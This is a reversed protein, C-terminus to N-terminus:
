HKGVVVEIVGDGDTTKNELAKGIVTGVKPDNNVIAYGPKGSTVLLDGKHVRGIVKCPVRGTLAVEVVNDGTLARNMLYAPDTSVVGAVKRDNFTTSQTVEFEGGFVVVTGPTYKVDAQYNEALDAYYATLAEGHFRPAYLGKAKPEGSSDGPKYYVDESTQMTNQASTSSPATATVTFYYPSVGSTTLKTTAVSAAGPNSAFTTNLTVNGTGDFNQATATVVGTINFTRITELKTASGANSSSIDTADSFGNIDSTGIERWTPATSDLSALFKRTTAHTNPALMATTDEASQYPISGVAGGVINTAKTVTSTIADVTLTNTSANFSLSGDTYVTETKVADTATTANNSNVFTIYYTANADSATETRIQSASSANGSFSGDFSPAYITGGVRLAKQVLMGGTVKVAGTVTDWNNIVGQGNRTLAAADTTDTFTVASNAALTTFAATKPSTSGISMNTITGELFPNIDVKGSAGTPSISVANAPSITVTGTGTPSLTINKDLATMTVAAGFTATDTTELTTFKGTSHDSSGISMNTITGLVTSTIELKPTNGSTLKVLDRYTTNDVDYASLALTNNDLKAAKLKTGAIFYAKTDITDTDDSGLISNNNVTLKNVTIEDSEFGNTIKISPAEVGVNFTWRDTSSLWTITKDALAKLTIGGGNATTNNNGTATFRFDEGNAVDGEFVLEYANTSPNRRVESITVTGTQAPGSVRTVVMGPILGTPDGGATSVVATAVRNTVTCTITPSQEVKALILNKDAVNVENSNVSTTTGRVTLNGTLITNGGVALDTGIFVNKAVALGGKSKLPAETSSNAADVSTTTVVTFTGPSEQGSISGITMNNITGNVGPRITITGGTSGDTSRPQISVSANIPNLTVNGYTKLNPVYVQGNLVGGSTVSMVGTANQGSFATTLAETTALLVTSDVINTIWYSNAALDGIATGTFVLEQGRYMNAVSSLTVANNNVATATVATVATSYTGISIDPATAVGSAGSGSIFIAQGPTYIDLKTGNNSTDLVKVGDLLYATSDLQGLANTRVISNAARQYTVQFIGYTNKWPDTADKTKLAMVGEVTLDANNNELVNANGGSYGIRNTVNFTANKIGDGAKVIEGTTVGVPATLTGSLNGLIRDTEIQQINSLATGNIVKLTVGTASGSGSFATSVTFVTASTIATVTVTIDQVINTTGAPAGASTRPMTVTGGDSAITIVSGVSINTMNSVNTVITSNFAINATITSTSSASLEVFGNTNNFQGKNFTALGLKTVRGVTTTYAGVTGSTDTNIVFSTTTPVSAVLWNGNVSTSFSYSGATTAVLKNTLTITTLNINKVYTYPPVGTGTVLQGIAIGTTSGSVTITNSGANTGPNISPTVATVVTDSIYANDGVLLGHAMQTTITTEHPTITGGTGWTGPDNPYLLTIFANPTGEVVASSKVCLFMGNVSTQSNGSVTYYIGVTPAVTYGTGISIQIEINPSTGSRTVDFATAGSPLGYPVSKTVSTIYTGLDRQKSSTNIDLKHQSIHADKSLHRSYVTERKVFINLEKGAILDVQIQSNDTSSTANVWESGSDTVQYVLINNDAQGDVNVYQNSLQQNDVYRKNVADKDVTPDAVNVIKNNEMRLPANMGLVGGRDLFGFGITGQLVPINARDMGLRRNLYGDIAHETPVKSDSNDQFTDDDSFESIARGRKFGLGDLNSLALSAAFTVTGTGQDVTFFRGVRFFGDQDTSVWFVRGTSREAVEKRQNKAKGVGYIKNPYNTQNYGGSGIESFDHSTVRCTSINIIIDAAEGKSLGTRLTITNDQVLEPNYLTSQSYAKTATSSGFVGPIATYVESVTTSTFSNSVSMSYTGTSNATRFTYTGNVSSINQTLNVATGLHNVLSIVTLNVFGVYTNTPIGTGTVLQGVKINTADNVTITNTSANGSATTSQEGTAIDSTLQGTITTGTTLGSGITKQITSGVLISGSAVASVTMTTSSGSATFVPTIRTPNSSLQYTGVGGTGTTSNTGYALIYTGTNIGDTADPTGNILQGPQITNGSVHTVTMIGTSDISATVTAKPASLRIVHDAFVSSVVPGTLNYSANTNGYITYSIGMETSTITSQSASLTYTGKGGAVFFSYSGSANSTLNNSLTITDSGTTVSKVYTNGPIGTGTVLKGVSAGAVVSGEPLALLPSGAVSGANVTMAGTASSIVFTAGGIASSITIQYLNGTIQRASNTGHSQSVRWTSGAGTGTSTKAVIYTGALVNDGTLVMGVAITGSAVTGVNLIDGFINSGNTVVTETTPNKVYYVTGSIITSFNTGTFVIPKNLTLGVNTALTIVNGDSSASITSTTVNANVTFSVSNSETSTLQGIVKTGATIGSGSINQITSGIALAGVGGASVSNVTLTTGSISGNFLPANPPTDGTYIYSIQETVSNYTASTLNFGEGPRTPASIGAGTYGSLNQYNGTFGNTGAGTGRTESLKIIGYSESSSVVRSIYSEIRHVRGNWGFVMQGTSIRNLEKTSNIKEIALYIDGQQAGLTRTTSGGDIGAQAETLTNYDQNIVIGIYTYSSDFTLIVENLTPSTAIVVRNNLNSSPTPSVTFTTNGTIATITTDAALVGSGTTGSIALTMGARLVSTDGVTLVNGSSTVGTLTNSTLAMADSIPNKTNFAIVRAVPADASDVPDSRWTLATSPRTPSINDVNYFKFNQNSRITVLQNNELAKQLGTTATSNSGSTNLSLRLISGKKLYVKSVSGTGWAGPDSTGFDLTITNATSAVCLWGNFTNNYNNNSNSSIFYYKGVAPAFGKSPFPIKLQYRGDVLARAGNNDTGFGSGTLSSPAAISATFYDASIDKTSAIEYRTYGIDTIAGEVVTYGHNIEIEGANNPYYDYADIYITTKDKVMETAFPGEKYVVATQVMDDSLNVFDPIEFPDSGEAVCGYEGHANSGGVSRIQGGNRSYYATWCYYTFVSVTEILGNNTAVLGYGLDNLQTWDNSLMSTNGAGQIILESPIPGSANSNYPTEASLQLVYKPYVAADPINVINNAWVKGNLIINNILTILGSITPGAALGGTIDTDIKQSVVSGATIRSLALNLSQYNVQLLQNDIIQQAIINIHAIAARTEVSQEGRVLSASDTAILYRKGAKITNYRGGYLIDTSINSVIFGVDRFCTAQNYALSCFMTGTDSDLTRVAGLTTGDYSDTITFRTGSIKEKVYYKADRSVGGFTGGAVRITTKNAYDFVGPNTPYAVTIYTSSVDTGVATQEPTIAVPVIINYLPNANNLIEYQKDAKPAPNATAFTFTVIFKNSVQIPTTASLITAEFPDDGIFKIPMGPRMNTTDYTQFQNTPAGIAQTITFTYQYNLFNVVETKIFERNAVLLNKAAIFGAPKTGEVMALTTNLLSTIAPKSNKETVELTTIIDDVRAKAFAASTLAGGGTVGALTTTQGTATYDPNVEVAQAVANVVDRLRKYSAVVEASEVGLRGVVGVFYSGAQARTELNGGYTLDYVLADVIFGVDRSWTAANSLDFSGTFPSIGLGGNGAVQAAVWGTIDSIIFSRNAKIFEKAGRYDSSYNTPEPIVVTPTTPLWLADAGGPKTQNVLDIIIDMSSGVRTYSLTGYTGQNIVSLLIVKLQDFALKTQTKQSSQVLVNSPISKYYDLVASISRFNSGFMVDYSVADIIYGVEDKFTSANYTFGYWTSNPAAAAVRESIWAVLQDAISQKVTTDQLRSHTTTLATPVWTLSPILEAAGAGVAVRQTKQVIAFQRRYFRDNTYLIADGTGQYATGDGTGVGTATFSTGPTPSTAGISIWNTPNAIGQTGAYVITYDRGVVFNGATVLGTATAVFDTNHVNDQAGLATWVTTGPNNIVYRVGVSLNGAKFSVIDPVPENGVVNLALKKIYKIVETTREIDTDSVFKADGVFYSLGHEVMKLNGTYVIDHALDDVLFRIDREVLAQNYLFTDNIFGITNARVSDSNQLLTAFAAKTISDALETSPRQVVPIEAFSNLSNIIIDLNNVIKTAVTTLGATGRVQPEQVQLFQGAFPTDTVVSFAIPRIHQLGERIQTSENTITSSNNIDYYNKVAIVTQSNGGYIADYIVANVIRDIDLRYGAVGASGFAFDPFRDNIKAIFEAKIMERNSLLLALSNNIGTTVTSLQDSSAVPQPIARIPVPSASYRLTGSADGTPANTVVYTFTNPTVSAINFVGNPSNTVSIADIVKISWGVGLGHSTKTVTITTGQYSWPSTSAVFISNFNLGVGFELIQLIIDMRNSVKAASGSDNVLLNLLQTKVFNIAALTPAKQGPFLTYGDRIYYELATNISQINSGLAVDYAVANIIYGIDRSCKVPDYSFAPTVVDNIYAITEAVIFDKNLLLLDSYGRNGDGTDTFTDVKYRIGEVFFATPTQPVRFADTITIELNDDTSSFVSVPMSGAQGDVYQGGRFAQKNLSGAFSGSQQCYPSKTLIQGNPDLVMMFGGHGQCSIQRIITADNCLFVDIDKNNKPTSAKNTADTLYHYGWNTEAITLNDFTIDRYFWTAAWPSQSVRDAPRIVTRRFEDGLISCNRPIRIPYDEYYNGSEIFISIELRKVPQDFFLNEGVAFSGTVDRLDVYDNDDITGYKVIFGRAGSNRGVVLKGPIIDRNNAIGQDVPSGNDNTFKIRTTGNLGGGISIGGPTIESYYKAGGYAILQRYPGTEWPSEDILQEAKLCAAVLSGYAYAFARGEKGTPTKRQSDDGSTSVYLNVKSSYATTDVYYKTAAQKDDLGIPNGAGALDGPHDSLFLKGTMTAGAKLVTEAAQPVQDGSAGAPVALYGVMADAIEGPITGKNIYRNDAFGLPVPFKEAGIVTQGSREFQTNWNLVNQQTPDAINGFVFGQADVSNGFKGAADASGLEAVARQQTLVIKNYNPDAPDEPYTITLGAAGVLPKFKIGNGQTNVIPLQNAIASYNERQGAEVDGLSLFSLTGEQGFVAYIEKFNENTKRFGERISDGTGDNGEVGIDVIKRAM